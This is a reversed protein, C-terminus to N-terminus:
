RPAGAGPGARRLRRCRAAEQRPGDGPPAARRQTCLGAQKQGVEVISVGPQGVDPIRQRGRTGAELM